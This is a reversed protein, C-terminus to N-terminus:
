ATSGPSTWWRTRRPPPAPSTASPKCGRRVAEADAAGRLPWVVERVWDTFAAGPPMPVPGRGPGALDLHAHANVMGPMVVVTGLDVLPADPHAGRLATPEGWATVRGGAAHLAGPSYVRGSLDVVAGALVVAQRAQDM